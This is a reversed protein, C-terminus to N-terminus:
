ELCHQEIAGAADESGLERAKKFDRCADFKDNLNVKAMGRLYHIRPDNPYLSLSRSYDEVAGMYDLLQEKASARNDYYVAENPAYKMAETFADIALTYLEDNYFELGLANHMNASTSDLELAKSFTEIAKKSEGLSSYTDGLNALYSINTPDLKVASKFDKLASEYDEINYYSIGRYNNLSVNKYDLEESKNFNKIADENHSLMYNAMAVNWFNVGSLSDLKAAKNFHLLATDYEELQYHCLGMKAYYTPDEDIEIAKAIDKIAHKFDGLRMKAYGLNYWAVDYRKDIDLAKTLDAIAGYFDESNIKALASQNYYLKSDPNIRIAERYSDIAQSYNEEEMFKEGEHYYDSATKVPEFEKVKDTLHAPIEFESDSLPMNFKVDTFSAKFAPRERNYAIQTLVGPFPRGEFIEYKSVLYYSDLHSWRSLMYNDKNVYLVRRAGNEDAVVRYATDLEIIHKADYKKWTDKTLAFARALNEDIAADGSDVDKKEVIDKVPNYEWRYKKSTGIYFTASQIQMTILALNPRKSKVTLPLAFMGESIVGRAEFTEIDDQPYQKHAEETALIIRNKLEEVEKKYKKLAYKPDFDDKSLNVQEVNELFATISYDRYKM